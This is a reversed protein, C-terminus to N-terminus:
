QTAAAAAALAAGDDRLARLYDVEGMRATQWVAAVATVPALSACM